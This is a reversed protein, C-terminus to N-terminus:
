KVIHLKTWVLCFIVFVAIAGKQWDDRLPKVAGTVFFAVIICFFINIQPVARVDVLGFKPFIFYMLVCAFIPILWFLLDKGFKAPDIKDKGIWYTVLPFCILFIVGLARFNVPFLENWLNSFEWKMANGTMWPAHMIQPILFWAALLLSTTGVVVFYM